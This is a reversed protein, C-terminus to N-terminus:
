AGGGPTTSSAAAQAKKELEELAPWDVVALLVDSAGESTILELLSAEGPGLRYNVSLVEIALDFCNALKTVIGGESNRGIWTFAEAPAESETARWEDWFACAKEWLWAAPGGIRFDHRGEADVTVIQPLAPAGSLLRALPVMWPQEALTVLHGARVKERVLDVPRPPRAKEIGIWCATKPMQQWTQLEPEYVTRAPEGPVAPIPAVLVGAAPKGEPSPGQGTRTEFKGDIVHAAGAKRLTDDADKPTRAGPVFYVFGAM